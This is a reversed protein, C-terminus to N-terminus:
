EAVYVDNFRFACASLVDPKQIIVHGCRIELLCELHPEESRQMELERSHLLSKEFAWASAQKYAVNPFFM